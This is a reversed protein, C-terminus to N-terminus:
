DRGTIFDFLQARNEAKELLVYKEKTDHVAVVQNHNQLWQRIAEVTELEKYILKFM